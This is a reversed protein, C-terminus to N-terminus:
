PSPPPTTALHAILTRHERVPNLGHFQCEILHLGHEALATDLAVTLEKASTVRHYPLDGLAAFGRCDRGHPTRVLREYHPVTSVPLFDFIGGGDNNLVVLAGHKYSLHTLLANADHHLALDGLLLLGPQQLATMEGLFTAITGDIGNLGRNAFVTRDSAPCHLNGYRVSMSSAVHLFSFGRHHIAHHAAVHESWAAAAIDASLRQQALRDADCWSTTWQPDGPACQAAIASITADANGQVSLWARAGTDLSAHREISIWPCDHKTLWSYLPRALPLPGVQIILEAPRM